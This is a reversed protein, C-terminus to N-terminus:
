LILQYILKFCVLNTHWKHSVKNKRIKKIQMETKNDKNGRQNKKIQKNKQNFKSITTNHWSIFKKGNIKWYIVYVRCLFYPMLVGELYTIHKWTGTNIPTYVPWWQDCDPHQCLRPAPSGRSSNRGLGATSRKREVLPVGSTLCM